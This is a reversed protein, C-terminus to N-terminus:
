YVEYFINHWRKEINKRKINEMTYQKNKKGLLPRSDVWNGVKKEKGIKGKSASQLIEWIEVGMKKENEEKSGGGDITRM